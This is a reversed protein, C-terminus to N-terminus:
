SCTCGCAISSCVSRAIADILDMRSWTPALQRSTTFILFYRVSKRSASASCRAIPLYKPAQLGALVVTQMVWSDDGPARTSSSMITASGLFAVHRKRLMERADDFGFVWTEGCLLHRPTARRNLRQQGLGFAVMQDKAAGITKTRGDLPQRLPSNRGS